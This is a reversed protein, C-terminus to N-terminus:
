PHIWILLNIGTYKEFYILEQFDWQHFMDGSLKLLKKAKRIWIYKKKNMHAHVHANTHTHAHTHPHTTPPNTTDLIIYFNFFSVQPFIFQLSYNLKNLDVTIIEIRKWSVGNSLFISVAM